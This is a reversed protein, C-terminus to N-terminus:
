VRPLIYIKLLVHSGRKSTKKLREMLSQILQHQQEIIKSKQDREFMEQTFRTKEMELKEKREIYDMEHRQEDLVLRRNELEIRKGELNLQRNKLIEERSEKNDLYELANRWLPATRNTRNKRPALIKRPAGKEPNIKPTEAELALITPKSPPLTEPENSRHENNTSIQIEHSTEHDTLDIISCLKM